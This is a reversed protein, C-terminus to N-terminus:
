KATEKPLAEEKLRHKDIMDMLQNSVGTVCKRCFMKGSELIKEYDDETLEKIKSGYEIYTLPTLEELKNVPGKVLMCADAFRSNFAVTHAFTESPAFSTYFYRQLQPGHDYVDLLYHALEETLAFYDSGKYLRYERGDASFVLPKRLFPQAATRLLVRFKSKLTGYQWPKNNLFRYRTYEYTEIDPLGAMCTGQLFNRGKHETLYSAIHQNSWVPYDQGSLMFLYDYHTCSGLAARILEMQFRVQTFSGWMVKTRKEIFVVRGQRNDCSRLLDVFPKVDYSADIHVYCDSDSPLSNVFRLLHPADTFASILFAIKM